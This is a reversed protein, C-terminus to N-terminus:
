NRHYHTLHTLFCFCCCSLMLSVKSFSTPSYPSPMDNNFRSMKAVLKKKPPTRCGSSSSIGSGTPGSAVKESSEIIDERQEPFVEKVKGAIKDKDSEEMFEVDLNEKRDHEKDNKIQNNLWMVVQKSLSSSFDSSYKMKIWEPTQHHTCTLCLVSFFSASFLYSSFINGQVFTIIKKRLYFLRQPEYIEEYNNYRQKLEDFLEDTTCTFVNVSYLSVFLTYLHSSPSSWHTYAFLFRHIREADVINGDNGICEVSPLVANVLLIFFLPPLLDIQSGIVSRRNPLRHPKGDNWCGSAQQTTSRRRPGEM